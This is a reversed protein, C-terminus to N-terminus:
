FSGGFTITYVNGTSVVGAGNLTLRESVVTETVQTRDVIAFMRHRAAKADAGGDASVDVVASSQRAQEAQVSVTGGPVGAALAGGVASPTERTELSEMSPRFRFM